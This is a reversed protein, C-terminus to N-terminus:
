GGFFLCSLLYACLPSSPFRRALLTLIQQRAAPHSGGGSPILNIGGQCQKHVIPFKHLQM